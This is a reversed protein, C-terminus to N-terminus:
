AAPAHAIAAHPKHLPALGWTEQARGAGALWVTLGMLFHVATVTQTMAECHANELVAAEGQDHWARGHGDIWLPNATMAVMTEAGGDAGCAASVREATARPRPMPIPAM